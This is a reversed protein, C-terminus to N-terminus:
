RAKGNQHISIIREVSHMRTPPPPAKVTLYGESSLNSVIQNVDYGAPITFRRSFQRSIFGQEDRREEHKAEVVVLNEVVKVSIENPKFQHVDVTVEFEYKGTNLFQDRILQHRERIKQEFEEFTTYPLDHFLNHNLGLGFNDNHFCYDPHRCWFSNRWPDILSDNIDFFRPVLSMKHNM